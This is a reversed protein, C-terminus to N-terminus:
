IRRALIAGHPRHGDGVRTHTHATEFGADLLEASMRDVPWRYATVVAHDFAEVVPGEFFGLALGGGPKVVRAFEALVGQLLDPNHHITSYWALVGGLAGGDVDLGTLDGVRFDIGPRCRRAHEVFEPVADVGSVDKGSESLLQTWQGPGCGADLIPGTIGRAWTQILSRDDPHVSEISGFLEIYEVARAAYSSRVGASNM